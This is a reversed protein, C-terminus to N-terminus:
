FAIILFHPNYVHKKKMGEMESGIAYQSTDYYSFQFDSDWRYM